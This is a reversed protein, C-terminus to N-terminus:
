LKLRFDLKDVRSKATNFIFENLEIGIFDVDKLYCSEATTGSGMFPDLVTNGKRYSLDILSNILSIPKQTPHIKSKGSVPKDRKVRNYYDNNDVKNLGTGYDYVRIIFEVNQSFRNKNIISLPKEWTLITFHHNNNEAWMAYYPILTENCFMYANLPKCVREFENMIVDVDKGTFDSMSKMMMNDNNYLKSKSFKSNTNCQNRESYPRGPSKKHWYPPDTIILGISNNEISKMVELCDGLRLDIKSM